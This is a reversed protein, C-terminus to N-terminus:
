IKINTVSCTYPTKISEECALQALFIGETLLEKITLLSDSNEIIEFKEEFYRSYYSAIYSAITATFVDGAGCTSEPTDQYLVPVTILDENNHNFLVVPNDGDTEIKFDWDFKSDADTRKTRRYILCESHERLLNFDTNGYRSDVICIDYTKNEVLSSLHSSVFGKNYDSVILISKSYDNLNENNWFKSKPSKSCDLPHGPASLCEWGDNELNLLYLKAPYLEPEGCDLGTNDYKDGYVWPTSFGTSFDIKNDQFFNDNLLSIVNQEVNGAGGLSVVIKEGTNWYDILPDGILDLKIKNM